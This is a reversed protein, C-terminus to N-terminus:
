GRRVQRLDLGRAVPDAPDDSLRLRARDVGALHRADDIKAREHGEHRALVSQHVHGLDLVLPDFVDAVNERFALFHLDLQQLDVLAALHAQRHAQDVLVGAFFERVRTRRALRALIASGAAIAAIAAPVATPAAVIATRTTVPSVPAAAVVTSRAAIASRPAFSAAITFWTFAAIFAGRGLESRGEQRTVVFLAS